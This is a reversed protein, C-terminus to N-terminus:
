APNAPVECAGLVPRSNFQAVALSALLHKVKCEGQGEGEEGGYIPSGLGREEKANAPPVTDQNRGRLYTAPLLPPLHPQSAFM